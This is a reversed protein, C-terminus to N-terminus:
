FRRKATEYMLEKDNHIQKELWIDYEDIEKRLEEQSKEKDLEVGDEFATVLRYGISLLHAITDIYGSIGAEKGNDLVYYRCGARSSEKAEKIAETLTM